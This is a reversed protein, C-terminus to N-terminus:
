RIHIEIKIIAIHINSRDTLAAIGKYKHPATATDALSIAYKIIYYIIAIFHDEGSPRLCHCVDYKGVGHIWELAPIIIMPACEGKLRYRLTYLPYIFELLLVAAEHLEGSPLRDSIRCRQGGERVDSANICRVYRKEEEVFEDLLRM